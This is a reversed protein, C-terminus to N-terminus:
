NFFLFLNTIVMEYESCNTNKEGVALKEFSTGCFTERTDEFRPKREEWLYIIGGINTAYLEWDGYQKSAPSRMSATFRGSFGVFDPKKFHGTRVKEMYKVKRLWKIFCNHKLQNYYTYDFFRKPDAPNATVYETTLNLGKLKYLRKLPILKPLHVISSQRKKSMGVTTRFSGIHKCNSFTSASDIQDADWTVPVPLYKKLGNVVSKTVEYRDVSDRCASEYMMDCCISMYCLLSISEM